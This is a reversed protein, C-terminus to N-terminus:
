FELVQGFPFSHSFSDRQKEFLVSAGSLSTSYYHRMHVPVKKVYQLAGKHQRIISDENFDSHRQESPLFNVAPLLDIKFGDHCFKIGFENKGCHCEYRCQCNCPLINNLEEIIDHFPPHRNNIYVIVDIDMMGHISTKKPLSGFPTIRDVVGRGKFHAQIVRSMEDITQKARQVVDHDPALGEAFARLHKSLTM